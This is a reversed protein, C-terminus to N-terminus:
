DNDGHCLVVANGQITGLEMTSLSGLILGEGNLEINGWVNGNKNEVSVATGEANVHVRMEDNEFVVAM